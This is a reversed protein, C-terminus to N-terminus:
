NTGDPCATRFRKLNGADDPTSFTAVTAGSRVVLQRGYAAEDIFRSVVLPDSVIETQRDAARAGVDHAPQSDFRYTLSSQGAPAVPGDWSVLVSPVADSCVIDLSATRLAPAPPTVDTTTLTVTPGAPADSWQWGTAPPTFAVAPSIETTPAPAQSVCGALMVGACAVIASAAITRLGM